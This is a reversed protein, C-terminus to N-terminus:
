APEEGSDISHSSALLPSPSRERGHSAVPGYRRSFKLVKRRYPPDESSETVTDDGNRAADVTRTFRDLEVAQSLELWRGYVDVTQRISSHGLQRQVYVIPVGQQILSSAYTHRLCHSTFHPSLGARKVIRKFLALTPGERFFRGDPRCFCLEEPKRGSVHAALFEALSQPIEIRRAARTKTTPSLTDRSFTRVIDLKRAEAHVSVVQLARAEGIRIGTFAMTRFMPAFLPASREAEELLRALESRTFAKVESRDHKTAPFLRAIRRAPNNPTLGDEHASRFLNSLVKVLMAPHLGSSTKAAILIRLDFRAIDRLLKRGLEARVHLRYEKRYREITSRGVRNEAERFWLEAYQDLTRSRRREEEGLEDALFRAAAAETDFRRWRRRGFRDRYDAGWSGRRFRVCPMPVGRVARAVARTSPGLWTTPIEAVLM